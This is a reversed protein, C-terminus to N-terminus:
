TLPLPGRMCGVQHIISSQGAITKGASVFPPADVNSSTLSIAPEPSRQQFELDIQALNFTALSAPSHSLAARSTEFATFYRRAVHVHVKNQNEKNTEASLSRQEHAEDNFSEPVAVVWM